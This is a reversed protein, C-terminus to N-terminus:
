RRSKPLKTLGLKIKLRAVTDDPYLQPRQRVGLPKIKYRRAYCYFTERSIPKFPKLDLLIQEVTM